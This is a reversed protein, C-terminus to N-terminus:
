YGDIGRDPYKDLGHAELANISSNLRKTANSVILISLRKEIARFRAPNIFRIDPWRWLNLFSFEL